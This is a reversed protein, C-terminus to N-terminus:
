AHSEAAQADIELPGQGYHFHLLEKLYFFMFAKISGFCEYQAVHRFEHPWIDTRAAQDARIYIGHGLTMGGTREPFMGVQSAIARITLVEPFAVEPVLLVRICEPAAVGVKRALDIEGPTLSRGNATIHESQREAWLTAANWLDEFTPTTM